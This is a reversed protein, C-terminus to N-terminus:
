TAVVGGVLGCVLAWHDIFFNIIERGLGDGRPAFNPILAFRAAPASLIFLACCTAMGIAVLFARQTATPKSDPFATFIKAAMQKLPDRWGGLPNMLQRAYWSQGVGFIVISLFLLIWGRSPPEPNFTGSYTPVPPGLLLDSPAPTDVQSEDLLALPWNGDRGLVTLWLPPKPIPPETPRSYELLVEGTTSRLVQAPAYPVLLWRAANYVGEADRSTFQARRPIGNTLQAHTWHQNRGFLPYTTVSLLGTLPTNENEREFLLDSDLTFLRLDRNASRLFGAIFLTDLVDTAAIGAYKAQERRLARSIALLAAQQSAPSLKESFAEPSDQRVFPNTSDFSNRLSLRNPDEQASTENASPSQIRDDQYVNPLRAIDRPYRLSLLHDDDQQTVNPLVLGYATEDESLWALEGSPWREDLYQHFLNRARGDGEITSRLHIKKDELDRDNRFAEYADTDTASGSVLDAPRPHARTALYRGLPAISGSFTPGVLRLTEDARPFKDLQDLVSGLVTLNVGSTPEEPVLYVLLM